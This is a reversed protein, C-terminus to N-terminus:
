IMGLKMVNYLFCLSRLKTVVVASTKYVVPKNEDLQLGGEQRWRTMGGEEEEEEEDRIYFNVRCFVLQAAEREGETVGVSPPSRSPSM